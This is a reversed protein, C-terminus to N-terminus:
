KLDAKEQIWESYLYTRVLFLVANPCKWATNTAQPNVQFLSSLWLCFTKRDQDTLWCREIFCLTNPIPWVFMVVGYWRWSLQRWTKQIQRLCLRHLHKVETIDSYSSKQCLTQYRKTSVVFAFLLCNLDINLYLWTLDNKKSLVSHLSYVDYYWYTDSIQLKCPCINLM